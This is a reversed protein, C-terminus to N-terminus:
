GKAYWAKIRADDRVSDHVRMLKPFASFVTPPVHDVAGGAFWRVAMHLKIDVVFLKAGGFFPGEGIQKEAFAGWTPFFSQVLAERAKKKEAADAMRMSPTVTARLDEVHGLMAEHRAAEFLDAPHLGHQRGVLVLIANSQGLPAHGPVEYVPVSGFPTTPKLAPWEERKVRVDEFDVGAVHLALRCEEGRSVPADFYFLRPKSM